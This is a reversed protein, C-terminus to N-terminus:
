LGIGLPPLADLHRATQRQCTRKDVIAERHPAVGAVVFAPAERLRVSSLFGGMDSM